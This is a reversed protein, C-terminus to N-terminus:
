KLVARFTVKGSDDTELGKVRVWRIHTYDKPRAPLEKGEEDTVKLNEPVDFIQGGDVSFTINTEEGAASDGVYAMHEPVPNVIVVNEAPEERTNAYTISFILEEGPIAKDVPVLKTEKEGSENVVEVERLIESEMVIGRTEQAYSHTVGLTCLITLIVGLRKYQM